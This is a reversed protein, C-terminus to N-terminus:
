FSCLLIERKLVINNILILKTNWTNLSLRSFLLTIDLLMVYYYDENVQDDSM